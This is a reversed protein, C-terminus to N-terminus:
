FYFLFYSQKKISGFHVKPFAPQLCHTLDSQFNLIRFEKVALTIVNVLANISNWDFSQLKGFLYSSFKNFFTDAEYNHSERIPQNYNQRPM